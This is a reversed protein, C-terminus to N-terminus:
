CPDAPHGGPPHAAGAKCCGPGAPTCGGIARLASRAQLPEPGPAPLPLQPRGARVEDRGRPASSRGARGPAARRPLFAAPSASAGAAGPRPVLHAPAAVRRPARPAASPSCGAM